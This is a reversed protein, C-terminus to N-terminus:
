EMARVVTIKPHMGVVYDARAKAPRRNPLVLQLDVQARLTQGDFSGPGVLDYDVLRAGGSWQYDVVVVSPDAAQLDALPKGAAWADLASKLTNRVTDGDVAPASRSCGVLFTVLIAASWPRLRRTQLALRM